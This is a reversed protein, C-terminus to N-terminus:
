RNHLHQRIKKVIGSVVGYVVLFLAIKEAVAPLAKLVALLTAM